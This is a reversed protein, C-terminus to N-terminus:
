YRFIFIKLLYLCCVQRITTLVQYHKWLFQSFQSIQKQDIPFTCYTMLRSIHRSKHQKSLLSPNKKKVFLPLKDVTFIISPIKHTHTQTYTYLVFRCESTFHPCDGTWRCRFTLHNTQPCCHLRKLWFLCIIQFLPLLLWWALVGSLLLPLGMTYDKIWLLVWSPPVVGLWITEIPRQTRNM